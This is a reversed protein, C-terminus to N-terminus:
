TADKWNRLVRQFFTQLFEVGARRKNLDQVSRPPRDGELCSYYNIFNLPNFRDPVIWTHYSRVDSSTADKNFPVNYMRFVKVTVSM